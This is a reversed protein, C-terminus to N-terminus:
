EQTQGDTAAQQALQAGLQMVLEAMAAQIATAPQREVKLRAQQQQSLGQQLQRQEQHIPAAPVHM